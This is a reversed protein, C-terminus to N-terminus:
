PRLMGGYYAKAQAAYNKIKQDLERRHDEVSAPLQLEGANAANSLQQDDDFNTDPGTVRRAVWGPAQRLVYEEIALDLADGPLPAEKRPPLEGIIGDQIRVVHGFAIERFSLKGASTTLDKLQLDAVRLVCAIGVAPTEKYDALDKVQKADLVILETPWGGHLNTLLERTKADKAMRPLLNNWVEQSKEVEVQSKTGIPRLCYGWDSVWFESERTKATVGNV